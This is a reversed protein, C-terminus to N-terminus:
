SRTFVQTAYLRNDGAVAVGVGMSTHDTRLLNLRHGPSAMWQNVLEQPTANRWNQLVNESWRTTGSPVQSALNPNHYMRNEASQVQSWAAALANLAGSTPLPARGNDVRAANTAAILQDRYENSTPDLAPVTGGGGVNFGFSSGPVLFQQASAAPVGLGSVAMTAAACAALSMRFRPSIRM